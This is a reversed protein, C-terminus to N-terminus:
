SRPIVAMAVIVNNVITAAVTRAVAQAAAGAGWNGQEFEKARAIVPSSWPIDADFQPLTGSASVLAALAAIRAEPEVVELLADRLADLLEPRRGDDGESLSTSPFLGLIKRDTEVLEGREVLRDILASRLPPGIAAVVTQVNRPKEALYDWAERLIPDTPPPEDNTGVKVSGLMGPETTVHGGFALDTLVGGALVYFLTNEGAITGHAPQFLLLLLDEAVLPAGLAPPADQDHGPDSGATPDTM